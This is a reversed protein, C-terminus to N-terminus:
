NRRPRAREAAYFDARAQIVAPDRPDVQEAQGLARDAAAFDGVAIAARAATLLITVRGDQPRNGQREAARLERRVEIVEPANADIREAEGLTREAAAFDGREIARRTREILPRLQGGATRMAAIDHRAQAVEAFGPAAKDANQLATEAGSFDGLSAFRRADAILNRAQGIQAASPGAPPAPAPPPPPRPTAVPPPPLPPPAPKAAEVAPEVPKDQSKFIYIGGGVLVVCLAGIIGYLLGNHSGRTDGNAVIDVWSFQLPVVSLRPIREWRRRM